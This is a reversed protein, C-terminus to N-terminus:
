SSAKELASLRDSLAKLQAKLKPISATHALSKGFELRPVAPSGFYAAAGPLDKTVGAQAGVIAWDGIKLHGALGAQGACIVHSGVNTTGAMGSQACLVVHDGLVCNHAIQVLNDIKSGKGVRTVGFRARDITTNAGIEVDDGLEVIGTQPIKTRVGAADVTYGFGDSGVVAGNHLIVRDGLVCRERVSAFPYLLCNAGLRAHHGVYTQPYLRTGPGLVAGPEVVAFAGISVGEGIVADPAVCALPSVGDSLEPPPPAFLACVALFASQVDAVRLLAGHPEPVPVGVPVVLASARCKPVLKLYHESGAVALDGPLSTELDAVATIAVDPAGELVASLKEALQATTFTM